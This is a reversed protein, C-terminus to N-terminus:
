LDFQGTIHGFSCDSVFILLDSRFHSKVNKPEKKPYKKPESRDM